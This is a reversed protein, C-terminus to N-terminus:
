TGERMRVCEIRAAPDRRKAALGRVLGAAHFCWSVVAYAGSTFSRKRMTMLGFPLCLMALAAILGDDSQATISTGVVVLICLWWVLVAVYIRLERLDRVVLGFHARGLAARLVEGVGWLYRSRWRKLLLRPAAITHGFHDVAPLGLRHLQWGAARLRAALDLEEYGHLNQDTLYGLQQLAARRYLGGGDLRRVRGPQLDPLARAVRARFELSQLNMEVVQGGVGALDPHAELYSLAAALFDAHLRMDGDLLYVYDGRSEQYGLQAGVGCSRQNADILRVIKIPYAMAIEVTRDTSLSDALIVEGAFPAVAQLASEIARAIHAEENLAKIIVSVLIKGM